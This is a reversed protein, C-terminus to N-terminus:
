SKNKSKPAKKPKKEGDSAGKDGPGAPPANYKKPNGNPHEGAKGVDKTNGPNGDGKDKKQKPKSEPTPEVVKTPEATPEPTATPTPTPTSSSPADPEDTTVVAPTEVATTPTVTVSATIYVTTTIEVTDTITAITGCEIVPPPACACLAIEDLQAQMRQLTLATSSDGEAVVVQEKPTFMM